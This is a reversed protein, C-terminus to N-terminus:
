GTSGNHNACGHDDAHRTRGNDNVGGHDNHFDTRAAADILMGCRDHRVSCAAGDM